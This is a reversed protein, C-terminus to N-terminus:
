LSLLMKKYFNLSRNLYRDLYLMFMRNSKTFSISSKINQLRQEPFDAICMNCKERSERSRCTPIIERYANKADFRSTHWQGKKKIVKDHNLGAAPLWGSSLLESVRGGGRV